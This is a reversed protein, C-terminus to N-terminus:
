HLLGAQAAATVFADRVQRSSAKRKFFNSCERRAYRYSSNTDGPWRSSMLSLAQTPSEVSEVDGALLVHVPQDWIGWRSGRELRYRDQVPM